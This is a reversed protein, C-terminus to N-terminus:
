YVYCPVTTKSPTRITSIAGIQARLRVPRSPNETDPLTPVYSAVRWVGNMDVLTCSLFDLTPVEVVAKKVHPM